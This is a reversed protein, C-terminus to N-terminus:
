QGSGLNWTWIEGARAASAAAIGLRMAVKSHATKLSRHTAARRLLIALLAAQDPEVILQGQGAADLIRTLPPHDASPLVGRLHQGLDHLVTVTYTDLGYFDSGHSTTIHTNM